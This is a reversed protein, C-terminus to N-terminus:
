RPRPSRDPPPAAGRDQALDPTDRGSEATGAAPAAGASGAPASALEDRTGPRPPRLLHLTWRRRTPFITAPGSRSRSCRRSWRRRFRESLTTVFCLCKANKRCKTFFNLFKTGRKFISDSLIHIDTQSLTSPSFFIKAEIKVLVFYYGYCFHGTYM